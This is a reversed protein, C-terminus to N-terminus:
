PDRLYAELLPLNYILSKGSATPTTIIVDKGVRILDTAQVQHSFLDKIGAAQMLPRAFPRLSEAFIPNKAPLVKYSTIQRSYQPSALLGSIFVTFDDM